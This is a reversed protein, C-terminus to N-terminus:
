VLKWMKEGNCQTTSAFAADLDIHRCGKRYKSSAVSAVCSRSGDIVERLEFGLILLFWVPM